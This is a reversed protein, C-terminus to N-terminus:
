LYWRTPKHIQPVVSYVQKLRSIESSFHPLSWKSTNVCTSRTGGGFEYWTCNMKHILQSYKNGSSIVKHACQIRPKFYSGKLRSFMPTTPTTIVTPNRPRASSIEHSLRSPMAASFSSELAFEFVKRTWQRKPSLPSILILTPRSNRQSTRKCTSSDEM